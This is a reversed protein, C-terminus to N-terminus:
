HILSSCTKSVKYIRSTCHTKATRKKDETLENVRLRNLLELFYLDDKQRM